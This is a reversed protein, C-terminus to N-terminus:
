QVFASQHGTASHRPQLSCGGFGGDLMLFWCPLRHKDRKSWKTITAYIKTYAEFYQKSLM